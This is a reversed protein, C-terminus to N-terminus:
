KVFSFSMILYIQDCMLLKDKKKNYETKIYQVSCFVIGEFDENIEQFEDQRKYKIIQFEIYKNLESIFSKITEPVIDNYSDKTDKM